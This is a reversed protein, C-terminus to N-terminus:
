KGEGSDMYCQVLTTIAEAFQKPNSREIADIAMKGADLKRAEPDSSKGAGEEDEEEDDPPMYGGGIGEIKRPKFRPRKEEEAEPGGIILM